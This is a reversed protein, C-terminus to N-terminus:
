SLKGSNELKKLMQKNKKNKHKLFMTILNIFNEDPPRTGRIKKCATNYNIGSFKSFETIDGKEINKDLYTTLKSKLLSKNM